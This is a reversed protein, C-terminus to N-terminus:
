QPRMSADLMERVSRETEGGDGCILTASMSTGDASRTTERRCREAPQPAPDPAQYMAAAVSTLGATPAPSTSESTSTLRSSAAYRANTASGYTAVLATTRRDTCAEVSEGSPRPRTECLQQARQRLDALAAVNPDVPVDQAPLMLALALLAIPFPM